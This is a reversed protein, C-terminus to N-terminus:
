KKEKLLKILQERNVKKRLEFGYMVSESVISDVLELVQEIIKPRVKQVELINQINTELGKLINNVDYTLPADAVLKSSESLEFVDNFEENIFDCIRQGMGYTLLECKLEDHYMDKLLQSDIKLKNSLEVFFKIPVDDLDSVRTLDLSSFLKYMYKNNKVFYMKLDKRPM